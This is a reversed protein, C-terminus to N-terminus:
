RPGPLARYIDSAAVQRAFAEASFRRKDLQCLYRHADYVLEENEIKEAAEELSQFYFPYDAGLYEVNAPLPRTAIPTNRVICEVITNSASVDYPDMFVLNESLLADYERNPVWDIEQYRGRYLRGDSLYIDMTAAERAAALRASPHTVVWVKLYGPVDLFRISHLRRLWYGFQLLKKEKNARFANFDFCLDPEQTPHVLAAVPVEVQEQLWERLCDSLVFLGCCHALSEQMISRNLIVQPSTDYDFWRPMNPPNHWIGVWPKRYPIEGGNVAAFLRWAFRDEIFDDLLTGGRRHLPALATMAYAWGSRHEPITVTSDISLRGDPSDDLASGTRGSRAGDERESFRRNRYEDSARLIDAVREIAIGDRLMVQSYALYGSRDITRGLIEVYLRNLETFHPSTEEAENGGAIDPQNGNMNDTGPASPYLKGPWRM